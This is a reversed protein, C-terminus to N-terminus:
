FFSINMHYLLGLIFLYWFVFLVFIFFYAFVKRHFSGLSMWLNNTACLDRCRAVFGAKESVEEASSVVEKTTPALYDSNEPFFVM